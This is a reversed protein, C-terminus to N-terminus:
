AEGRARAVARRLARMTMEAAMARKYEVPGHSDAAPRSQEAAAEAARRFAAETPETGILAAEAETAAFATEAVATLGIGAEAIRGAEDLRLQVAAGATSFDGAKREINAYAGGSGPRPAPVRIETLIEDPRIATQFTDVFFERAPLAREGDVSRCVLTARSAILVAPWDAAPDAHACSGGITGWNRVQPDGIVLAAEAFLPYRARVTPDEGIRRHTARAGIRLEGDREDIGDLGGVDRLDVLLGPAALRLKLLPILSYGGALLKAEGERDRLIRLAEGVDAPRVYDFQPPIM